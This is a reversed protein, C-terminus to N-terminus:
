RRLAPAAPPAAALDREIAADLLAHTRRQVARPKLEHVDRLEPLTELVLNPWHGLRQLHGTRELEEHVPEGGTFLLYGRKGEDRLRDLLEDLPDAPPRRAVPM